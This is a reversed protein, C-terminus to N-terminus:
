ELSERSTYIVDCYFGRSNVIIFGSLIKPKLGRRGPRIPCTETVQYPNLERSINAICALEAIVVILM